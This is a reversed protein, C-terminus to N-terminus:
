VSLRSLLDIKAQLLILAAFSINNKFKLSDIYFCNDKDLLYDDFFENIIKITDGNAPKVGAQMPVSNVATEACNIILEAFSKITEDKDTIGTDFDNLRGEIENVLRDLQNSNYNNSM